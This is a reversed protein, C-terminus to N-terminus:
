AGGPEPPLVLLRGCGDCVLLKERRRAEQLSAPPLGRHCGGCAGNEIAAVARGARGSRLKEYRTRAAQALKATTEARRAQLAALEAQISAAEDDLRAIVAQAAAESRELEHAKAPRVTADREEAELRELAENELVDRKARVAAIEHQMAELQHQTTVSLLQQEYRKQQVDYAAIERDLVRRRKMSETLRQDIAQVVARAAAVKAALERRAEPQKALVQERAVAQEDIEHLDWHHRLEETV